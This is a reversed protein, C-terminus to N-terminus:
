GDPIPVPISPMAQTVRMGRRVIEAVVELAEPHKAAGMESFLSASRELLTIEGEPETSMAFWYLACAECRKDNTLRALEISEQSFYSAQTLKGSRFYYEALNKLQLAEGRKDGLDRALQLAAELAVVSELQKGLRLLITGLNGLARVECRRDEKKQSFVLAQKAYELAEDYKGLMGWTSALNVILICELEPLGRERAIRLGRKYLSIAEQLEGRLEALSGLNGLNAALTRQDGVLEAISVSKELITGAEATSGMVFLMSGLNGLSLAELRKDGAEEAGHASKRHHRAAARHKGMMHFTNGLNAHASAVLREDKARRAARLCQMQLNLAERYQGKNRYVAGIDGLFRSKNSESRSKEAWTLGEKYIAVAEDYQGVSRLCTGLTGLIRGGNDLDGEAQALKLADRLKAIARHYSGTQRLLEGALFFATSKTITLRWATVYEQWSFTPNIRQPPSEGTTRRWLERVLFDTDTRLAAGPYEGFPHRLPLPPCNLEGGAVHEVLYVKKRGSNIEAIHPVLDFFDSCSYGLVLVSSHRGNAFLLEIVQRREMSLSRMAVRRLTMVVSDYDNASGHIKYLSRGEHKGLSMFDSKSAFVSYDRGQGLGILSLARECLLDFNTTCITNLKGVQVLKALLLHNSNPAGERFMEILSNVSGGRALTDVFAEFPISSGQVEKREVEDLPLERLIRPVLQSVLPLGSHLSIGAGAFIALQGGDIAEVIEDLLTM